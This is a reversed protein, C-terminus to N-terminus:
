MTKCQKLDNCMYFDSTSFSFFNVWDQTDGLRARSDMTYGIVRNFQHGQRQVHQSWM